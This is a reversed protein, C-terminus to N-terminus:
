ALYCEADPYRYPLKKKKIFASHLTLMGARGALMLMILVIKGYLSFDHALSVNLAKSSGTSLGVTGLASFIEFLVSLFGRKIYISHETILLFFLSILAFSLYFLIISFARLLEDKPIFRERLVVEEEGKFVSRVWSGFYAFVTTKIGGATGGPSGGVIMLFVVFLLTAPHFLSINILNFGATRPTVAHFFSILIKDKLSFNSLSGRYEMLFVFIWGIIILFITTKIVVKSHHTLKREEKKFVKRYLNDIVPFGLGGLIFLLSLPIYFFPNNVFRAANESFSSFGANCFSSITHFVSHGLASLVPYKNILLIVLLYLFGILEFFLSVMAVRKFFGWVNALSLREFTERATLKLFYPMKKGLFGSILFVFTIYGLGGIQILFLMVGKGFPTFFNQTDKVILGTVCVASTATFLADIFSLNGNRSFPLLLFFTGTLIILLYGAIIVTAPRIKRM